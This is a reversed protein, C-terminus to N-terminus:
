GGNRWRLVKIGRMDLHTAAGAVVVRMLVADCVPCRLVSGMSEYVPVSAIPGSTGCGACTAIALTLDRAFIDDPAANGDLMM